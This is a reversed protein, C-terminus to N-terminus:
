KVNEITVTGRWFQWYQGKNEKIGEWKFPSYLSFNVGYKIILTDFLSWNNWGASRVAHLYNWIMGEYWRRVDFFMCHMWLWNKDIMICFSKSGWAILGLSRFLFTPFFFHLYGFKTDTLDLSWILFDNFNNDRGVM